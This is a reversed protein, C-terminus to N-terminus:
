MTIYGDGGDVELITEDEWVSVRCRNFLLEENSRERGGRAVATRSETGTFKVM